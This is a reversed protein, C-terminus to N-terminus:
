ALSTKSWYYYEDNKGKKLLAEPFRGSETALFIKGGTANSDSCKYSSTIFFIFIFERM